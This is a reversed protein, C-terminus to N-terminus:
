KIVKKGNKIVIGRYGEGVETGMISYAKGSHQVPVLDEGVMELATTEGDEDDIEIQIAKALFGLKELDPRYLFGRFAPITVKKANKIVGDSVYYVENSPIETTETFVKEEFTGGMSWYNYGGDWGYPANEFGLDGRECNFTVEQPTDNFDKVRFLVPLGPRVEEIYKFRLTTLDDKLRNYDVCYYSIKDDPELYYPLCVTGYQNSVTRTHYVGKKSGTPTPYADTGINQEWAEGLLHCIEGYKIKAATTKTTHHADTATTLSYNHEGQFDGWTNLEASLSIDKYTTLNLCNNVSVGNGYFECIGLVGDSGHFDSLCNTIKAAQISGTIGGICKDNSSYISGLNACKSITCNDSRMIGIIGGLYSGSAAAKYKRIVYEKGKYTKTVCTLDSKTKYKNYFSGTVDSMKMAIIMGTNLCDEFSSSYSVDGAIGGIWGGDGAILASNICNKFSGKEAQGAIGGICAVDDGITEWYGDCCICSQDDVVCNTFHTNTSYGVVGGGYREETKIFTGLIEVDSITCDDTRGAVGGTYSDRSTSECHEVKINEFTCNKAHGVVTGAQNRNATFDSNKVTINKFTCNTTAYGAVAGTNDHDGGVYTSIHDFTINEFVCGNKAQSAIVAQNHNDRNDIRIGKFTLNKITAGSCNSFMYTRARIDAVPDGKITHGNGDIIGSFTECYTEGDKDIDSLAFDATLRVKASADKKIANWLKETTDVEIFGDTGEAWAATMCCLMLLSFLIKKM